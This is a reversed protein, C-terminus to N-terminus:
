QCEVTATVGINTASATLAVAIIDGASVTTTTFDTLTTSHIHTGSALSVGATNISNSALTPSATGAAVKLFKVTVTGSDTGGISIDWGIITCAAAATVPLSPSGGAVLAAGGNLFAGGFTYIQATPFQWTARHLSTDTVTLVQGIATPGLLPFVVYGQIGTVTAAACTGTLDGGLSACTGGSGGNPHLVGADCSFLTGPGLWLVMTRPACTKGTPDTTTSTITITPNQASVMCALLLLSLLLGLKKM